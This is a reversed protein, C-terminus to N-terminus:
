EESESPGEPVEAPQRPHEPVWGLRAVLEPLTLACVVGAPPLGVGWVRSGDKTWQVMSVHRERVLTAAGLAVIRDPSPDTATDNAPVEAPVDDVARKKTAM